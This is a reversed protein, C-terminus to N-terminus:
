YSLAPQRESTLHSCVLAYVLSVCVYRVFIHQACVCALGCARARVCVCVCVDWYVDILFVRVEDQNGWMWYVYMCVYMCVCMIVYGCVYMIVYVCVCVSLCVCVCARVHIYVCIHAGGGDQDGWSWDPGRRVRTGSALETPRNETSPANTPKNGAAM